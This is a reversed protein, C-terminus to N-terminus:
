NPSPKQIKDIVMVDVLTKTKRMRLGLQQEMATFLDPPAEADPAASQAEPPTAGGSPLMGPYPTFKLVFTYHTDGLGTQDIVPLDMFGDLLLAAFQAMTANNVNVGRQPQGAVGPLPTVAHEEKKIRMGSELVTIAYVSLEKRDKHFALSFRDGVLEQLMTKMQNISPMGPADPKGVIDFKASDAWTPAGIVQKSHLDYAFKILDNLTTNLTSVGSPNLRIGWGPRTPDSPKITAVEFGPKANPDMM